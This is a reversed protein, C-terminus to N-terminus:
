VRAPDTDRATKFKTVLAAVHSASTIRRALSVIRVQLDMAANVHGMQVNAGRRDVVIRIMLALLIRFPYPATKAQGDMLVNVHAMSERALDMGLVTYLSLVNFQVFGVMTIPLVPNAYHDM